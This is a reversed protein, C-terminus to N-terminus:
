VDCSDGCVAVWAIPLRPSKLSSSRLPARHTVECGDVRSKDAFSHSFPRSRRTDLTASRFLILFIMGITVRVREVPVVEESDRCHVQVPMFLVSWFYLLVLSVRDATLGDPVPCRGRVPPRRTGAPGRSAKACRNAGLGIISTRSPRSLSAVRPLPAPRRRISAPRGGEEPTRGLSTPLWQTADFDRAPPVATSHRGGRKGVPHKLLVPKACTATWNPGPSLPPSLPTRNPRRDLAAGSRVREELLLRGDRLHRTAPPTTPEMLHTAALRPHAAVGDGSSCPSNWNAACGDGTIHTDLTDLMFFLVFYFISM